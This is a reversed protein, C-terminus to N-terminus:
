VKEEEDKNLNLELQEEEGTMKKYEDLIREKPSFMTLIDESRISFVLQNTYDSLYPKIFISDAISKLLIYPNMIELDPDNYDDPVIKTINSAVLIDGTKMVIGQIM